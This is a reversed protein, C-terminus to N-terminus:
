PSGYLHPNISCLDAVMRLRLQEITQFESLSIAVSLKILLAVEAEAKKLSEDVRRLDFPGHRGLERNLSFLRQGEDEYRDIMREYMLIQQDILQLQSAKYEALRAKHGDEVFHAGQDLQLDITRLLAILTVLSIGPGLLGGFFTGFASWKDPSSSIGANFTNTYFVVLLLFLVVLGMLGVNVPRGWRRFNSKSAEM